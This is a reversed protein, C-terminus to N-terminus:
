VIICGIEVVFFRLVDTELGVGLLSLLVLSKDVVDVFLVDRFILLVLSLFFEM